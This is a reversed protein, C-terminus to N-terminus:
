LVAKASGVNRDFGEVKVAMPILLYEAVVIV